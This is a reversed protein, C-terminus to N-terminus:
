LFASGTLLNGILVWLFMAKTDTNIILMNEFDFNKVLVHRFLILIDALIIRVLAVNVFRMEILLRSPLPGLEGGRVRRM